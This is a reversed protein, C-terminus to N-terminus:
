WSGLVWHGASYIEQKLPVFCSLNNRTGGRSDGRSDGRSPISTAKILLRQEPFSGASRGRHCLRSLLQFRAWSLVSTWRAPNEVGPRLSASHSYLTNGLTGLWTYKGLHGYLICAKGDNSTNWSYRCRRKSKIDRLLWCQMVFVNM